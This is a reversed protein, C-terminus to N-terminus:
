LTAADTLVMLSSFLTIVFGGVFVGLVIIIAPGAISAVRELRQEAREALVNGAEEIMDGFSGSRRGLAAARTILHSPGFCAELAAGLSGGTRVRGAADVLREALIMNAVSRSADSLAEGVPNGARVLAAFLRAFLAEDIATALGLGMPGMLALDRWRLFRRRVVAIQNILIVILSVSLVGVLLSPVVDSFALLARTAMPMADGLGELAPRLSPIVVTLFVVLVIVATSTVIAPYLLLSMAKERFRATAVLLPAAADLAPELGGSREGARIISALAKGPVGGLQDFAQAPRAGEALDDAISLLQQRTVARAHAEAALRLGNELPVGARSLRALEQGLQGAERYGLVAPERGAVPDIRTPSLRRRALEAAAAPRTAAELEGRESRGDRRLARYRFRM